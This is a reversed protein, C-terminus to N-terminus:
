CVQAASDSLGATDPRDIVGLPELDARDRARDLDHVGARDPPHHLGNAEPRM